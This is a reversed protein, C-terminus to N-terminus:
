QVIIIRSYETQPTIVRVTYSGAAGKVTGTFV